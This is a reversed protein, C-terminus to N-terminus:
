SEAHTTAPCLGIGVTFLVVALLGIINVRYM